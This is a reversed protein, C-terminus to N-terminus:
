ALTSKRGSVRSLYRTCAGIEGPFFQRCALADNPMAGVQRAKAILQRAFAPLIGYHSHGPLGQPIRTDMVYPVVTMLKGSAQIMQHYKDGKPTAGRPDNFSVMGFPERAYFDDQMQPRADSELVMIPEDLLTCLEWLTFHALFCSIRRRIDRTKYPHCVLGEIIAEGVVPWMWCLGRDALEDEARAPEVPQWREVARGFAAWEAIPRSCEEAWGIM